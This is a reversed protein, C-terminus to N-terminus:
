FFDLDEELEIIKQERKEVENLYDESIVKFDNKAIEKDKKEKDLDKKISSTKKRFDIM